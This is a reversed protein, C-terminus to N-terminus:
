LVELLQVRESVAGVPQLRYQQQWRVMAAQEDHRNADDMVILCNQALREHMVPLLGYRGGPTSGLPGDCVVLNFHEPMRDLPPTYWSYAGYDKLPALCLRVHSLQHKNLTQQLRAHWYANEELTWVERRTSHTLAGLLLTTLGSGCELVPGKTNALVKCLQELLDVDAQWLNGWGYSLKMLTQRAPLQNHKLHVIESLAQKLIRRRYPILPIQAWQKVRRVLLRVPMPTKNKIQTIM